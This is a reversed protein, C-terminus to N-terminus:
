KRVNDWFNDISLLLIRLFYDSSLNTTMYSGNKCENYYNLGDKDGVM